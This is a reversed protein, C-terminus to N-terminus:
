KLTDWGDLELLNNEKAYIALDVPIDKKLAKFSETSTADTEWYVLIEIGTKDKEKKGPILSHNLIKRFRWYDSDNNNNEREVYDLINNYSMIDDLHIDKSSSTNKEFAIKFKCQLPDKDLKDDFENILEVVRARKMNGRVNPQTLFVRGMVDNLSPRIVVIEQGEHDLCLERLEDRLIFEFQKFVSEKERSDRLVVFEKGEATTKFENASNKSRTPYRHQMNETSRPQNPNFYLQQINEQHELQKDKEMEQWTKSKTSAPISDVPDDLDVDSFPTKFDALTMMEDLM